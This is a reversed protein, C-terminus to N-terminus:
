NSKNLKTGCKFCFNSNIPNKTGCSTCFIHTQQPTIPTQNVSKEEVTKAKFDVVNKVESVAESEEVFLRYKEIANQVIKAERKYILSDKGGETELDSQRQLLYRMLQQYLQRKQQTTEAQNFKHLVQRQIEERDEWCADVDLVQVAEEWTAAIDVNEQGVVTKRTYRIVNEKTSRNKEMRLIELSRGQVVLQYIQPNEPFIDWFPPEKQIHVPIPLDKSEGRLQARKAEITQGKWDQYSKRLEWMGDICRLSFGGTEQVFVVRHQEAEGLPTVADRSGVREQLLPLLKIAAPDTANRGGVVAVKTNTAPTFGADRGRLVAQNLTILPQSRSYAVAIQNRIEPQDNNFVKFIRDCASLDQKLRSGKPANVVIGQVKDSLIEKFDGDQVDPLQPVDFLRMVEDAARTQKWLPSAQALVQESVTTCINDLGM